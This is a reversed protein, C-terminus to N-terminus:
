TKVVLVATVVAAIVVLLLVSLAILCRKAWKREARRMSQAPGQSEAKTKIQGQQPARLPTILFFAGAVWLLPCM